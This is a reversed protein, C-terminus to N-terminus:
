KLDLSKIAKEYFRKLSLIQDNFKDTKSNRGLLIQEGESMLYNLDVETGIEKVTALYAACSHINDVEGFSAIIKPLDEFSSVRTVGEIVNFPVDGFTISKKGLLAAEYASTGTITIVGLSNIIWPKPDNYYTLDVMKVNPLRNIKKYFDLKREGAMAQHEKVYLLWGVPLSKAVQEIVFLENIYYPAHVFTSSEPILHLPMYVYKVNKGPASFFKNKGFLYWKITEIKIYFWIHKLSSALFIKNKRKLPLNGSTIDLNIFYQIVGILRKFITFIPDRNYNSTIDHEFQKSMIKERNRFNKIYIYEEKLSEFNLQLKEKFVSYFQENRWIIAFSPIKYHEFRSHGVTIYPINRKHAVAAIVSRSLEAEDLDLIVDPDFEDMLQIIRKYNLELWYLQQEYSTYSLFFRDHFTRSLFQSTLIQQLLTKHETYKKEIDELYKFDVPPNDLHKSFVELIDNNDYVILDKVEKHKYYTNENFLCKKYLSEPPNFFYSAVTNEKLLEKSLFYFPFSYSEKCILLIKKSKLM